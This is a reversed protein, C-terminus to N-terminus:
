RSVSSWRRLSCRDNNKQKLTFSNKILDISTQLVYDHSLIFLLPALRDEQLDGTFIDFFDTDGDPSRVM